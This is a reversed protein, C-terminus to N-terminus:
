LWLSWGNIYNYMGEAQFDWFVCQSKLPINSANVALFTLSVENESSLNLLKVGSLSASIVKSNVLKRIREGQLRTNGQMPRSAIFLKDNQYLFSTLRIKASKSLLSAARISGVPISVSAARTLNRWTTANSAIGLESAGNFANTGGLILIGTNQDSDLLAATFVLNEQSLTVPSDDLVMKDAMEQLSNLISSFLVASIM